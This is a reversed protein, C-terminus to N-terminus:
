QTINRIGSIIIILFRISISFDLHYNKKFFNNKYLLVYLYFYIISVKNIVININNYNNYLNCIVRTFYQNM